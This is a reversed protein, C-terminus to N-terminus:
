PKRKEHACSLALSELAVLEAEACPSTKGDASRRAIVAKRNAIAPMIGGHVDILENLRMLMAYNIKVAESDAQKRQAKSM